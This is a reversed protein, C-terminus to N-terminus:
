ARLIKPEFGAFNPPTLWNKCPMPAFGTPPKVVYEAILGEVKNPLIMANERIPADGCAGIFAKAKECVSEKREDKRWNWLLFKKFPPSVKSIPALAAIYARADAGSSITYLYAYKMDTFLVMEVESITFDWGRGRATRVATLVSHLGEEKIKEHIAPPIIFQPM